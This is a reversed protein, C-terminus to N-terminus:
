RARDSVIVKFFAVNGTPKAVSVTVGEAGARVLLVRAAAADLQSLDNAAAIGYYLGSKASPLSMSVSEGDTAAGLRAVNAAGVSEGVTEDLAVADEDLVVALSVSGDFATSAAVKFLSASQGAEHPLPTIKEALADADLSEGNVVVTVGSAVEVGDPLEEDINVIGSGMANAASIEVDPTLYQINIGNWMGPIEVGWWGGTSSRKVYATCRPDVGDFAYRGIDPRDGKFIVSTLGNCKGFADEEISMVSDPITVSTLGSCEYFAGRGIRKVSGPITVRTLNYRGSFASDM